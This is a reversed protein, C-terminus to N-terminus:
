YSRLPDLITSDEYGLAWLAIGGLNHKEAFKIKDSMVEKDPYFIQHYSNTNVDRYVIYKELAESDLKVSCTTCKELLLQVRQSSATIGTGPIVPSRPNTGITEWEYGYLPVGLIIKSPPLVTLAKEVATQIDFEAVGSSGFLPAVPGTVSSGQYHYDYGMIIVSDVYKSIDAPNILYNKIFATPSVDISLTGLNQNELGKRVEKVFQTFHIRAEESAVDIYEVDLNLDSFGYRKMVPSIDSILNDAHKVPDSVLVGISKNSGSFVVLSLTQHNDKAAQLFPNVKGSELAYWGPEKEQPNAYEVISGDDSITLGFYYIGNLYKSYDKQAKDLLWFPLFGMAQNGPIKLVSRVPTRFFILYGVLIGVLIGFFGVLINRVV